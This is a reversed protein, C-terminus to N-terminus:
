FAEDASTKSEPSEFFVVLSILIKPGDCAFGSQRLSQKAFVTTGYAAYEMGYQLFGQVGVLGAVDDCGPDFTKFVKQGLGVPVCADRCEQGVGDIGGEVYFFEEPCACEFVGHCLQIRLGWVPAGTKRQREIVLSGAIKQVTQQFVGGRGCLCCLGATGDGDTAAKGPPTPLVPPKLGAYVHRGLYISFETFVCMPQERYADARPLFGKLGDQFFMSLIVKVKKLLLLTEQEGTQIGCLLDKDPVCRRRAKALDVNTETTCFEVRFQGPNEFPVLIVGAESLLAPAANAAFYRINCKSRSPLSFLRLM